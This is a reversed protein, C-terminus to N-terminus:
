FGYLRMSRFLLQLKLAWRQGYAQVVMVEREATGELLQGCLGVFLPM